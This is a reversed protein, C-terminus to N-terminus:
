LVGLIDLKCELCQDMHVSKHGEKILKLLEHVYLKTLKKHANFYILFFAQGRQHVILNMADIQHEKLNTKINISSGACEKADFAYMQKNYFILFDFPSKEFHNPAEHLKICFIGKERYHKFLETITKELQKGRNKPM